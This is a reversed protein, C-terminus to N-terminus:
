DTHVNRYEWNQYAVHIAQMTMFAKRFHKNIDPAAYKPCDHIIVDVATKLNALLSFAEVMDFRDSHHKDDAARHLDMNEVGAGHLAERRETKPMTAAARQLEPRLQVVKSAEHLSMKGAEVAAVVEPEGKAAISKATSVSRESVKMIKAAQHTPLNASGGKHQNAGMKWDALKSAAMARQSANLHRRHLNLSAVYAPIDEENGQFLRVKPEIKLWACARLRNRGDIVKGNYVVIAERQGHDRIDDHLNKWEEDSMEPFIMAAPHIQYHVGTEETRLRIAM